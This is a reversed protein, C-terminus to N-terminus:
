ESRDDVGAADFTAMTGHTMAAARLLPIALLAGTGEGLRLSLDLLPTAEMGDLLVRHGPVASRHGHFVYGAANPHARVAAAVAATCIFGDAIVAIRHHAAGLTAGALAALELGGVTRLIELPEDRAPEHQALARTVVEAKTQQMQADAGTGPGVVDQVARGTLACTVATATTTNGIGMEGLAVVTAGARHARAAADLGVQLAADFEAPEMAPEATFDRSGPRVRASVFDIGDTTTWPPLPGDVGVDVIELSADAATALAASASGGGAINAVMQATVQRPYPSVAHHATVGHDAAFLLGRPHEIRPQERCQIAALRVAVTELLGLSGPPKTLRSQRQRAAEAAASDLPEISPVQTHM